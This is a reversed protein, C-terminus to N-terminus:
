LLNINQHVSDFKEACPTISFTLIHRRGCKFEESLFKHDNGNKTKERRMKILYAIIKVKIM